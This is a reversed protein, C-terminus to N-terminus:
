TSPNAARNQDLGVRVQERLETTSFPKHLIGHPQTVLQETLEATDIYGSMYLVVTDPAITALRKALEPGKMRPMVVDTLVLDAPTDLGGVIELAEEGNCATLVEYGADVLVHRVFKRVLDEDEVVLITETGVPARDQRAAPSVASQEPSAVDPARPFWVDITTGHGLESEVDIHGGARQVIGYVTSLGLGTGKGMPKTTFFPEFIRKRTEYDMGLGGDRVSLVIGDTTSGNASGGGIAESRTEILMHGGKSMADRANLVLNMIVQELEGRDISIPQTEPALRTEVTLDEGILRILMREMDTIVENLDVSRVGRPEKRSFALLQSTLSMARHTAETIQGVEGQLPHDGPLGTEIFHANGGIVTLLNNFDHAVGGALKGIAEMKQTQRLENEKHREDTIDQVIM